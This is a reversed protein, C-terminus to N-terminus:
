DGHPGYIASLAAREDATVATAPQPSGHVRNRGHRKAEYLQHDVMDLLKIATVWGQVNSCALGISVSVSVTQDGAVAIPERAVAARVREAFQLLYPNSINVVIVAFEDGGYRAVTDTARFGRALVAAIHKLVRDGAAHGHVDNIEKFHDVDILLLGFTEGSRASREIEKKLALDFHRRNALHTLGDHSSIACLGDIIAQVSPVDDGAARVGAHVLLQLADALNLAGAPAADRDRAPAPLGPEDAAILM